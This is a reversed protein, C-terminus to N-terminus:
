NLGMDWMKGLVALIEPVELTLIAVSMDELAKVNQM